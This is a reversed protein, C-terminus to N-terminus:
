LAISQGETDIGFWVGGGNGEYDQSPYLKVGNSLVMVIPTGNGYGVEWGEAEIEAPTMERLETITMGEIAIQKTTMCETYPITGFKNAINVRHIALM